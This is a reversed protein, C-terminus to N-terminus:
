VRYQRRYESPPVGLKSSFYRSLYFENSFGSESAIQELKMTTHTLLHCVKRLKIREVYTSPKMGYAKQFLRTFQVAGMGMSEALRGISIAESEAADLARRAEEMRQDTAAPHLSLMNKEAAHWRLLDLWVHDRWLLYTGHRNDDSSRLTSLSSYFRDRNQFSLCLSNYPEVPPAVPNGGCDTWHFLVYHFSIPHETHRHFMVGPPCLLIQGAAAQGSSDGIRYAFGGEEVAFAAWEGYCDAEMEFSPKRDYYHHRVVSVKHDWVFSSFM